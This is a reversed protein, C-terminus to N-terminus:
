RVLPRGLSDRIRNIHGSHHATEEIMHALSHPEFCPGGLVGVMGVGLVWQQGYGVGFLVVETHVDGCFLEMSELLISIGCSHM